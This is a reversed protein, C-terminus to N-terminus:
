VMEVFADASNGSIHKIYFTQYCQYHSILYTLLELFWIKTFRTWLLRNLSACIYCLGFTDLSLYAIYM